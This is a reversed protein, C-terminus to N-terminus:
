PRAHYVGTQGDPTAAQECRLSRLVDIAEARQDQAARLNMGSAIGGVFNVFLTGRLRHALHRLVAAPNPVHELVELCVIVDHTGCDPLDDGLGPSLIRAHPLRWAAYALTPSPLDVLTCRDARLWASVPAIGCGYELLTGRPPLARRIEPWRSNRHYYAQRLLLYENTAYWARTAAETADPGPETEKSRMRAVAYRIWYERWTLHRHYTSLERFWPRFRNM